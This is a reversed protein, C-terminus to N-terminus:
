YYTNFQFEIMLMYIYMYMIYNFVISVATNTTEQDSVKHESATPLLVNYYNCAVIVCVTYMSASPSILILLSLILIMYLKVIHIFITQYSELQYILVPISQFRTLDNNTYSFLIKPLVLEIQSDGLKYNTQWVKM